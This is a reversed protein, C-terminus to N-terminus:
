LIIWNDKPSGLQVWLKGNSAYENEGIQYVHGTNIESATILGGDAVSKAVTPVTATAETFMWVHQNPESTTTITTSCTQDLYTINDKVYIYDGDVNIYIQITNESDVYDGTPYYKSDNYVYVTVNDAKSGSYTTQGTYLKPGRVWLTNSGCTWQYYYDGFIDIATSTNKAATGYITYTGITITCNDSDIDSATGKFHFAKSLSDLNTLTPIQTWVGKKSGKDDTLVYYSAKNTVYVLMGIYYRNVFTTSIDLDTDDEVVTRNDLPQAGTPVFM